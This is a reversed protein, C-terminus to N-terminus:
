IPFASTILHIVKTTRNLFAASLIISQKVTDMCKFGYRMRRFEPSVAIQWYDFLKSSGMKKMELKITQGMRWRLWDYEIVM